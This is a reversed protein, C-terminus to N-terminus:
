LKSCPRSSFCPAAPVRQCCIDYFCRKRDCSEFGECTELTVDPATALQRYFRRLAPVRLALLTTPKDFRGGLRGQRIHVLEVDPHSCLLEMETLKWVSAANHQQHLGIYSPHELIASAGVPILHVIFLLAVQFLRNAQFVQKKFVFWIWLCM